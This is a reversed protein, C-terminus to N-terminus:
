YLAQLALMARATFVPCYKGLNSCFTVSQKKLCHLNVAPVVIWFVTLQLGVYLVFLVSQRVQSYHLDQPLERLASLLQDLATYPLWSTLAGAHM